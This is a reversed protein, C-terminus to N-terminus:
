SCKAWRKMFVLYRLTRRRFLLQQDNPGAKSTLMHRHGSHASHMNVVPAGRATADENLERQVVNQEVYTRIYDKNLNRSKIVWGNQVNLFTTTHWQLWLLSARRLPSNLCMEETHKLWSWSTHKVSCSRRLLLHLEQSSWYFRLNRRIWLLKM